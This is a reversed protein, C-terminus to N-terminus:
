TICLALQCFTVIYKRALNSVLKDERSHHSSTDRYVISIYDHIKTFLLHDLLLSQFFHQLVHFVHYYHNAIGAIDKLKANACFSFLLKM